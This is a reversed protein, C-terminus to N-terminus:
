KRALQREKAARAASFTFWVHRRVSEEGDAVRVDRCLAKQHKQLAGSDIRDGVHAARRLRAKTGPKRLLRQPRREGGGADTVRCQAVNEATAVAIVPEIAVTDGVVFGHRSFGPVDSTKVPEEVVRPSRADTQHAGLAFREITMTTEQNRAAEGFAADGCAVDEMVARDFRVGRRFNPQQRKVFLRNWVGAVQVRRSLTVSERCRVTGLM